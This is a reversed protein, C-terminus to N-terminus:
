IPIKPLRMWHTPNFECESPKEWQSYKGNKTRHTMWKDFSKHYTAIFPANCFGDWVLYDGSNKPKDIAYKWKM